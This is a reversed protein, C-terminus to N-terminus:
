KSPTSTKTKTKTKTKTSKGQLQNEENKLKDKMGETFINIDEPRQIIHPTIFIQLNTKQGSNGSSKFAWGLLPLSGLCPVSQSSLSRDDRILGGLVATQGDKLIISTKAQRIRTTPTPGGQSVTASVVKKIEQYIDLKVYGDQNIHPTLRLTLGVNKYNISYISSSSNNVMERAGAFPVEEGVIIEAEENDTTLIHPTSLINVDSDQQYAAILAPINPFPIDNIEIFGKTLGIFMGSPPIMTNTMNNINGFNTGGVPLLAKGDESFERMARWEVGLEKSKEYSVEAILAEVLVQPRMIDLKELVRELVQYDEPSSTIILSNTAKDAVVNPPPQSKDDKGKDALTKSMIQALIKAMEEAKQNKLFYVQIQDKDKPTPSDLKQIIEKMEELEEAEAMIILTDTREDPIIKAATGQSAAKKNKRPLAKQDGGFITQLQKALIDVRANQISIVALTLNESEIDIEKIIKLLRHINSVRETLILMNTPLYSLIKSERSILPHLVAKVKEVDAYQLPIIQTIMSDDNGQRPATTNGTVTALNKSAANSEPVIKIINDSPVTTFGNVELISEFIAFADEVPIEKPSIVTVKGKIRDDLIFNKGTLESMFKIVLRIDVNDFDMTVKEGSKPIPFFPKNLEPPPAPTPNDQSRAVRASYFIGLIILCFWVIAKQSNMSIFYNNKM